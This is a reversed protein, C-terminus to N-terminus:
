QADSEGQRNRDAKIKKYSRLAKNTQCSPGRRWPHLKAPKSQGARIEAALAPIDTLREPLVGFQVGASQATYQEHNKVSIAREANDYDHDRDHKM